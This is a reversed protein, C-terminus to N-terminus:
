KFTERYKRVKERIQREKKPIPKRLLSRELIKGLRVGAQLLRQNVTKINRYEYDYSLFGTELRYVQQRLAFSEMVWDLVHSNRWKKRQIRTPFYIFDVYESYSLDQYKIIKHDWVVHLNTEKGFWHVIKRNGGQDRRRGVHLPQHLDGIFHVLFRLAIRREENSAKPDRLQDEFRFISEVIDGKPNPKVTFYTKGDDINVYHWPDAKSWKNRDSRIEDAWTSAKPLSENGMLKKLEKRAASSMELEAIRGVVRHGIRAWSWAQQPLVLVLLLLLIRM